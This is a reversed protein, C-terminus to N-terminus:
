VVPAVTNCAQILEVWNQSLKVMCGDRTDPAVTVNGFQYDVWIVAGTEGKYGGEVILIKDGRKM